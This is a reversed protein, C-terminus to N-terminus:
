TTLANTSYQVNAMIKRGVEETQTRTEDYMQLQMELQQASLATPIHWLNDTM